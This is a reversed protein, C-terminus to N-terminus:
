NKNIVLITELTKDKMDCLYANNEKLLKIYDIIEQTILEGPAVVPIGPPYAMISEGSVKNVCDNINISQKNAYFAERPNIKVIPNIQKIKISKTKINKNSIM